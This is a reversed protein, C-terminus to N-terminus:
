RINKIIENQNKRQECVEMLFLNYNFDLVSLFKVGNLGFTFDDPYHRRIKSSILDFSNIDQNHNFSIRFFKMKQKRRDM